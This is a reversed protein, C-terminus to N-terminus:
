SSLSSSPSLPLSSFFIYAEEASFITCICVSPKMSMFTRWFIFVSHTHPYFSFFSLAHPHSSLPHSPSLLSTLNKLISLISSNHLWIPLSLIRLSLLLLALSTVFAPSFRSRLLTYCQGLCFFLSQLLHIYSLSCLLSSLKPVTSCDQWGPMVVANETSMRLLRDTWSQTWSGKLRGESDGQAFLTGKKSIEISESVM